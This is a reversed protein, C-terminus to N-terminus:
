TWKRFEHKLTLIQLKLFVRKLEVHITLKAPFFHTSVVQIYIKWWSKFKCVDPSKISVLWMVMRPRLQDVLLSFSLFTSNKFNENSFCIGSFTMKLESIKSFFNKEDFLTKTSIHGWLDLNHPNEPNRWSSKSDSVRQDFDRRLCIKPSRLTPPYLAQFTSNQLCTQKFM